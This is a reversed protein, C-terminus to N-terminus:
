KLRGTRSYSGATEAFGASAFRERASASARKLRKYNCVLQDIQWADTRAGPLLAGQADVAERRVRGRSEAVCHCNGAGAAHDMNRPTDAEAVVALDDRAAHLGFRARRERVDGLGELRDPAFSESTMLIVANM